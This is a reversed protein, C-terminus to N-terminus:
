DIGYPSNEKTIEANAPHEIAPPTDSKKGSKKPPKPLAQKKRGLSFALPISFLLGLMFSSLVSVFVPIEEFEKFGFSINSTNHLNLIIFGLFVIFVIIFVILRIM